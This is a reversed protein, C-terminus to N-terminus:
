KGAPILIRYARVAHLQAYYHVTGILQLM